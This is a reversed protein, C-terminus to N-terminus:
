WPASGEGNAAQMRGYQAAYGTIDRATWSVDPTTNPASANRTVASPQENVDIVKITVTASHDIAMDSLGVSDKRDSASVTVTYSTRTEYDPVTGAAVAIQGTAPNITFRAADAGGMSYALLDGNADIAAVPAGVDKGPAANEPVYRVTAASPFVPNVNASQSVSAILSGSSPPAAVGVNTRVTASEGRDLASQAADDATVSSALSATDAGDTTHNYGTKDATAAPAGGNEVTVPQTGVAAFVGPGAQSALWFIGSLLAAGFILVKVMLRNASGSSNIEM